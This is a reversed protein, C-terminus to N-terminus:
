RFYHIGNKSELIEMSLSGDWRPWFGPPSVLVTKRANHATRRGGYAGRSSTVNQHNEFSSVVKSGFIKRLENEAKLYKPDVTLIYSTSQKKEDVRIENTIRSNKVDQKDSPKANISLEEIISVISQESTLKQDGKEKSKKKKKKTKRKTVPADYSSGTSLIEQGVNGSTAAEDDGDQEDEQFIFSHM